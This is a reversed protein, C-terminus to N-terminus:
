LETLMGTLEKHLFSSHLTSPGGVACREYMSRELVPTVVNLTKRVALM